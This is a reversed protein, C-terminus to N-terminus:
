SDRRLMPTPPDATSIEKQLGSPQRINPRRPSRIGGVGGADTICNANGHEPRFGPVNTVTEVSRIEENGLQVQSRVQGPLQVAEAIAVCRVAIAADCGSVVRAGLFLALAGPPG